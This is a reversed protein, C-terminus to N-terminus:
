HARPGASLHGDDPLQHGDPRDEGGTDDPRGPRCRAGGRSLRWDEYPDLVGNGNLDRFRLGELELVPKVRAGIIVQKTGEVEAVKAGYRAHRLLGGRPEALLVSRRRGLGAAKVTISQRARMPTPVSRSASHSVLM